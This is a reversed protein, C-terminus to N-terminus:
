KCDFPDSIILSIWPERLGPFTNRGTGRIYRDTFKKAFLWITFTKLKVPCVVETAVVQSQWHCIFGAMSFIYIFSIHELFNTNIIVSILIKYLKWADHFKKKWGNLFTFAMRLKQAICIFFAPRILDRSWIKGVGVTICCAQQLSLAKAHASRRDQTSRESTKM